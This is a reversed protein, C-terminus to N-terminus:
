KRALSITSSASPKQAPFYSTDESSLLSGRLETRLAQVTANELTKGTGDTTAILTNM